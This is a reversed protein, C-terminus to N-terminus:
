PSIDSVLLNQYAMHLDTINPNAYHLFDPEAKRPDVIALRHKKSCTSVLSGQRVWSEGQNRSTKKRDGIHTSITLNGIVLQWFITGVGGNSWTQGVSADHLM